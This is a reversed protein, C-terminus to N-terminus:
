KESKLILRPSVPLSVHLLPEGSLLLFIAEEVQKEWNESLIAAIRGSKLADNAVRSEGLVTLVPKKDADELARLVAALRPATVYIGKLRSRDRLLRRTILYTHKEGSGCEEASEPLKGLRDSVEVFGRLGSLQDPRDRFEVLVATKGGGTAFALFQAAMRGAIRLEPYVEGLRHTRSARRGFLLTREPPLALAGYLSSPCLYREGEEEAWAAPTGSVVKVTELVVGLPRLKKKMALLAHLAGNEEEAASYFAVIRKAPPLASRERARYGMAKATEKIRERTEKGVRDSGTLAKSVTGVTVGCAAAVDRITVRNEM